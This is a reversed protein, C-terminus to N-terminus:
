GEVRTKQLYELREYLDCGLDWAEQSYKKGNALAELGAKVKEPSAPLTTIRVNTANNIANLISVHGSSQFGEACGTSGHPTERPTEQLVVNMDDPVDICRVVGAGRLTEHKKMDDYNETLAFGISHAFGGWAQGLVAHKSGVVGADAIINAREVKTKGTELDVSVEAVFVVHNQAINGYGHGTDRHIDASADKHVGNFRLQVSDGTKVYEDYTMYSGDAKRLADLLQRAADYIANGAVHHSRSGSAPGTDPCKFTDNAINHIQSPKM